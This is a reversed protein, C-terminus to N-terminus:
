YLILSLFELIIICSSSSVIIPYSTRSSHIAGNATQSADVKVRIRDNAGIAETGFETGSSSDRNNSQQQSMPVQWARKRPVYTEYLKVFGKAKGLLNGARCSYMGYDSKTLNSIKLQMQFTYSRGVVTVSTKKNSIILSTDKHHWSMMPEPAAEVVCTLTVDSITPSGIVESPVMIRPPFQVLIKIRKSVTPPVKNSAMCLYAGSHTRIAKPISLENSDVTIEPKNNIDIPNGDERLWSVKPTPYGSAKCTLKISQGEQIEIDSSTEEDIIDPPVLVQLYGTSKMVPITNIQCLYLGRDQSNVNKIHLFWNEDNTHSIRVRPDQTIVNEHITLVTKSDVKVWAMQYRGINKIPCNLTADQGEVVTGNNVVSTFQPNRQLATVVNFFILLTVFDVSSKNM